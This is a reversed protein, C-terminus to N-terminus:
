VRKRLSRRILITMVLGAIIVAVGCLLWFLCKSNEFNWKKSEKKVDFKEVLVCVTVIQWQWKEV